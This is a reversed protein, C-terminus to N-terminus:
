YNFVINFKKRVEDLCPSQHNMIDQRNKILDYEVIPANLYEKSIEYPIKNEDLLKVYDLINIKLAENLANTADLLDTSTDFHISQAKGKVLELKYEVLFKLLEEKTQTIPIDDINKYLKMIYDKEFNINMNELNYKM